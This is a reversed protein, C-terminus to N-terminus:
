SLRICQCWRANRTHRSSEASLGVSQTGEDGGLQTDAFWIRAQNNHICMLPCSASVHQYFLALLWVWQFGWSDTTNDLDLCLLTGAYAAGGGGQTFSVTM